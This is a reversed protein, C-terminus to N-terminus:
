WKIIEDRYLNDKNILLEKILNEKIKPTNKNINTKKANDHANLKNQINYQIKGFTQVQSNYEDFGPNAKSFRNLGSM